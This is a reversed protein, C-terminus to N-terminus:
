SWKDSFKVGGSEDPWSFTVTWRERVGHVRVRTGKASHDALRHTVLGPEGYKSIIPLALYPWHVFMVYPHEYIETDPDWEAVMTKPNMVRHGKSWDGQCCAMTEFGASWLENILPVLRNDIEVYEDTFPNIIETHEHM